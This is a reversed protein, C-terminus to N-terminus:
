RKLMQVINMIYDANVGRKQCEEFFVKQPDRQYTLQKVEDIASSLTQQKSPQNNQNPFLSSAM